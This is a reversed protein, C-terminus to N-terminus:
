TQVAAGSGPFTSAGNYTIAWDSKANIWGDQFARIEDFHLFTRATRNKMADNIVGVTAPLAQKYVTCTAIIDYPATGTPPFLQAATMPTTDNLYSYGTAAPTTNTWSADAEFAVGNSGLFFVKNDTNGNALNTKRAWQVFETRCNQIMQIGDAASEGTFLVLVQKAHVPMSFASLWLLALMAVWKGGWGKTLWHMRGNNM